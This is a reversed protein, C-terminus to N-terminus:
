GLSEASFIFGSETKRRSQSAAQCCRCPWACGCPICRDKWIDILFYLKSRLSSHGVEQLHILTAGISPSILNVLTVYLIKKCPIVM